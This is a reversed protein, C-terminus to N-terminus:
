RVLEITGSFTTTEHLREDIPSNGDSYPLPGVQFMVIWYLEETPELQRIYIDGVKVGGDEFAARLAETIQPRGKKPKVPIINHVVPLGDIPPDTTKTGAARENGGADQTDSRNWMYINWETAEPTGDANLGGRYFASVTVTKGPFTTINESEPFLMLFCNDVLDIVIMFDNDACIEAMDKAPM